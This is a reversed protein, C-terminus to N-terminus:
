LESRSTPLTPVSPASSYSSLNVNVKIKLFELAWLWGLACPKTLMVHALRCSCPLQVVTIGRKSLETGPYKAGYLSPSQNGSCTREPDDGTTDLYQLARSEYRGPFKLKRCAWSLGEPPPCANRTIQCCEAHWRIGPIISSDTIKKERSSKSESALPQAALRKTGARDVQWKKPQTCVLPCQFYTCKKWSSLFLYTAATNSVCFPNYRIRWLNCPHTIATGSIYCHPHKQGRSQCLHVTIIHRTRQVNQVVSM